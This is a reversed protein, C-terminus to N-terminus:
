FSLRGHGTVEDVELLPVRQQSCSGDPGRALVARGHVSGAFRGSAHAFRRTGGDVRTDQRLQATALCTVPDVDVTIALTTSVIRLTGAAFVLDDRSVNAPDGPRNPREVIRGVGDFVGRVRIVSALVQRSGSAGSVVLVGHFQEPGATRAQAPAAAGAVLLGGAALLGSLLIRTLRGM